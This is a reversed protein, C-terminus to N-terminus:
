EAVLKSLLEAQNLAVDVGMETTFMWANEPSNVRAITRPINFEFRALTTAVLNADDEATVAALVQARSIGAAELASPSSVDGLVVNDAGLEKILREIMA